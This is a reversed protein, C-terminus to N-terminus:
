RHIPNSLYKSHGNHVLCSAHFAKLFYSVKGRIRAAHATGPPAVSFLFAFAVTLIPVFVQGPCKNLCRMIRHPEVFTDPPKVLALLSFCILDDGRLSYGM